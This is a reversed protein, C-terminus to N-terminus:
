LPDCLSIHPSFLSMQVLHFGWNLSLSSLFVVCFLFLSQFSFESSPDFASQFLHFIDELPSSLAISIVPKHFLFFFTSFHVSM